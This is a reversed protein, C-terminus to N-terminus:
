DVRAYHVWLSEFVLIPEANSLLDREAVVLNQALKLLREAKIEYLKKLRDMQDPNLIFKQTNTKLVLLDRVIQMWCAVYFQATSRDKITNKWDSFFLFDSVQCFEEFLLLAEARKQVGEESTLDKLRDVRGRASQYSWEPQLPKILKLEEATLHSFRMVQVRSRITPLFQKLDEGILIFFVNEVPEELTKLLANSAQQNLTQAQDIIVVRAKGWAALSLSALLERVSEVKIVPKAAEEDPELIMLSESAGKVVRLCAGCVGCGTGNQECVLIQAFAQALKRKGIGSPGVFLLAHPWRELQRLQQLQQIVAQHGIIQDLLRAM